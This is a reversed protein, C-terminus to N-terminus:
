APTPTHLTDLISEPLMPGPGIYARIIEAKGYGKPVPKTKFELEGSRRSKNVPVYTVRGLRGLIVEKRDQKL